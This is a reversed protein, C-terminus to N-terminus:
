SMDQVNGIQVAIKYRVGVKADLKVKRKSEFMVVVDSGGFQFYGIEEGKRLTVGEEATLIISSVVAVGVPLVAVM